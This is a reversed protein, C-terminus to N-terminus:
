SSGQTKLSSALQLLGPWPAQPDFRVIRTRVRAKGHVQFAWASVAHVSEGPYGPHDEWREFEGCAESNWRDVLGWREAVDSDGGDGVEEDILFVVKYSIAFLTEAMYGGHIWWTDDERGAYISRTNNGHQKRITETNNGSRSALIIPSRYSFSVPVIRSRYPILVPNIRSRYSFPRKRSRVSSISIFELKKM